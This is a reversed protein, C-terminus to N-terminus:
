RICADLSWAAQTLYKYYTNHVQSRHNHRDVTVSYLHTSIIPITSLISWRPKEPRTSHNEAITTIEREFASIVWLVATARFDAYKSYNWCKFPRQHLGICSIRATASLGRSAATFKSVYRLSGFNVPSSRMEGQSLVARTQKTAIKHLFFNAHLIWPVTQDNKGCFQSALFTLRDFSSSTDVHSPEPSADSLQPSVQWSLLSNSISSKTQCSVLKESQETVQPVPLIEFTPRINSIFRLERLQSKGSNYSYLVM